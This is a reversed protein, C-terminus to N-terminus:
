LNKTPLSSSPTCSNVQSTAKNHYMKMAYLLNYVIFLTVIVSATLWVLILTGRNLKPPCNVPYEEAERNVKPGTSTSNSILIEGCGPCAHVRHGTRSFFFYCIVAVLPNYAFLLGYAILKCPHLNRPSIKPITFVRYCYECCIAISQQASRQNDKEETHDVTPM